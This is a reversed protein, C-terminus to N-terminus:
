WPVSPGTQGPPEPEPEGIKLRLRQGDLVERIPTPESNTQLEHSRRSTKSETTVPRSPGPRPDRVEPSRNPHVDPSRAQDPSNPRVEGSSRRAAMRARAAARDAQVAARSPQYDAFDHIQFGGSGNRDWIGAEVMVLPLNLPEGDPTAPPFGALLQPLIGPSIHGDTLFRNAYCLARVQLALAFPYLDGLARYKPHDAIADDLKVWTM